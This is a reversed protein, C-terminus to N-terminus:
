SWPTAPRRGATWPATGSDDVSSDVANDVSVFLDRAPDALYGDFCEQSLVDAIFTAIAQQTIHPPCALAFTAAAVEALVASDAPSARRVEVGM